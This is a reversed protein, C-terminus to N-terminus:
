SWLGVTDIVVKDKLSSGDIRKFQRHAVLEVVIDAEDIATLADTMTVNKRDLSKPIFDINPEVVLLQGIKADALAEAIHLAPSERLDDVDPKFALGLCAIKPKTLKKAAKIAEKIVFDTKGDNVLRALKIMKAERPASDVIFWPDVAICHGGVGPGPNLINVRPHCNAFQIVDWVNINLRTCIMSLENAFAINVDRFSNETLKVLEATAATTIKCEGRVFRYYLDAALHACHPTIGGVIRDNNVLETLIRGPLVREPCYAVHIDHDTSQMNAPFSLDKRLEALQQTARETTGVPSTSEIIVLNDKELLPAISTIAAEVYSMDPKKEAMLPTPVTIIFADAKQPQTYDKLSGDSVVKNVLGELDPEVIHIKGKNVTDVVNKNTDVGFVKLGASALIASTPLGIYGQGIVCVTQIKKM